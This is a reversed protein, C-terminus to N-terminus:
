GARYALTVIDQGSRRRESMGTVFVLSGDPSTAVAIGADQEDFTAGYTRTWLLAGTRAAYGVTAMDQFSEGLLGESGWRDLTAGTVWVEIGDPSAAIARPGNVAGLPGRYRAVWRRDGTTTDYAVTSFVGGGPRSGRDSSGTVVLTRGGRALVVDAAIDCCVDRDGGYTERWREEGAVDYAITLFRSGRTGGVAYVNGAADLSVVTGSSKRPGSRRWLLAGTSPDYALTVMRATGVHGALLGTVAVLSPGAAVSVAGGGRTSGTTRALWRQGGTAADYAITVADPPGEALRSSGTVVVTSGDPSLALDLARDVLGAGDYRRAWVRDGTAADWAVTAFDKGTEDAASWGTVFVTSGDLSVAMATPTDNGRRPGRYSRGWRREGSSADYALLYYRRTRDQSWYTWGAVYVTTGDPSPAIAVPVDPYGDDGLWRARWAV